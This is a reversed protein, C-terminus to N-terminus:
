IPPFRWCSSITAAARARKTLRRCAPTARGWSQEQFPTRGRNLADVVTTITDSRMTFTCLRPFTCGNADRSRPCNRRRWSSISTRSGDADNLEVSLTFRPAVRGMAGTIDAVVAAVGNLTTFRARVNSASNAIGFFFRTVRDRGVIPRLAATFEGGGDSTTKVDAALLAEVAAVDHAELSSLFTALANRTAESRARTPVLRHRNYENLARRARHHTTKVNAESMDLRGATERVTYDFVDRLILVARQAPTLAELALLFAFSM